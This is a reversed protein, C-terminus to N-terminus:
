FFEDADIPKAEVTVVVAHPLEIYFFQECKQESQGGKDPRSLFIKLTSPSANAAFRM